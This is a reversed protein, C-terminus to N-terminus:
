VADNEWDRRLFVALGLRLRFGKPESAQLSM